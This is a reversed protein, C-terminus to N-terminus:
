SGNSCAGRDAGLPPSCYCHDDVVCQCGAKVDETCYGELWDVCAALTTFHTPTDRAALEEDTPCEGDPNWYEGDVCAWVPLMRQYRECASPPDDGGCGLLTALLTWGLARKM